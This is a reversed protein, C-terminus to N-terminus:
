YYEPIVADALERTVIGRTGLTCMTLDLYFRTPICSSTVYNNFDEGDEFFEIYIDERFTKVLTCTVTNANLGLSIAFKALSRAFTDIFKPTSFRYDEPMLKPNLVKVGYNGPIDTINPTTDVMSAAYNVHMWRAGITISIDTYPLTGLQDILPLLNNRVEIPISYEVTEDIPFIDHTAILHVLSRQQKTKIMYPKLVHSSFVGRAFFRPSLKDEHSYDPVHSMEEVLDSFTNPDCVKSMDASLLDTINGMKSVLIDTALEDGAVLTNVRNKLQDRLQVYPKVMDLYRYHWMGAGVMDLFMRHVSELENTHCGTLISIIKEIGRRHRYTTAPSGNDYVVKTSIPYLSVPVNADMILGLTSPHMEDVSLVIHELIACNSLEIIKYRYLHDSHKFNRSLQWIDESNQILANSLWLPSSMEIPSNTRIRIPMPIVDLIM